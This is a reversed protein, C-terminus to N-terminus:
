YTSVHPVLPRVRGFRPPVLSTAVLYFFLPRSIHTREGTRKQVEICMRGDPQLTRRCISYPEREHPYRETVVVSPKLGREITAARHVRAGNDGDDAAVDSGSLPLELQSTGRLDQTVIRLTDGDKDVGHELTTSQGARAILARQWSAFGLAACGHCLPLDRAHMCTCVVPSPDSHSSVSASCSVFCPRSLALCATHYRVGIAHAHTRWVFVRAHTRARAHIWVKWLNM